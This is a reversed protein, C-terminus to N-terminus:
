HISVFPPRAHLAERNVRMQRTIVGRLNRQTHHTRAHAPPRKYRLLLAVFTELSFQRENSLKINGRVHRNAVGYRARSRATM